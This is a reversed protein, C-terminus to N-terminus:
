QRNRRLTLNRYAIEFASEDDSLVINSIQSLEKRQVEVQMKHFAAVTKPSMCDAFADFNKELDIYYNIFAFNVHSLDRSIQFVVIYSGTGFLGSPIKATPSSKKVMEEFTWGHAALVYEAKRIDTTIGGLDNEILRDVYLVMDALKNHKFLQKKKIRM